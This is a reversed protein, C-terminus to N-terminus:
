RKGALTAAYDHIGIALGEALRQIHAESKLRAAEDTNTCYGVEVLVSPMSSGVLVFFPAGKVGGDQTPSGHRNLYGVTERQLCTALRQSERTRAGRLIESLIKDMDGLRGSDANELMALRSAASTRAFDLIYTEMGSIKPNDCANVHVSVFLDGHTRRGFRVREGLSIWKDASRTLKVEFGRRELIAKMKLVISLNVSKEVVGNHSTGPDKGGHGPDLVITRVSLGLQSALTRAGERKKGPDRGAQGANKPDAKAAAPKGGAKDGTGSGPKQAAGGPRPQAKPDAAASENAGAKADKGAARASAKADQGANKPDAKDAAPKGGAKDGTGNGPKQAAGGPKPQAKPDAKASENAGAKADKGAARASAKADQGANKPDAKAAAPKGGTKGGTGNGPKQAAAPKESAELLRLYSAAGAAHDSRPYDKQIRALYGASRKKDHLIEDSIRAAHYLADDALVSSPHAVSLKEYAQVASRADAPSKTVRARGELAAGNRYLAAYRLKWAPNKEYIKQFEGALETWQAPHGGGKEMKELKQRAALYGEPYDAAISSGAALAALLMLIPLFIAFRKHM